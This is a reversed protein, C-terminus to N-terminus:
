GKITGKNLGEIQKQLEVRVDQRLEEEYWKELTPLHYTAKALKTIKDGKRDIDAFTAPILRKNTEKVDDTELVLISNESDKVDVKKWEEKVVGEAILALANERCSAWISDEVFSYSPPIDVVIGTSGTAPVGYHGDAELYLIM